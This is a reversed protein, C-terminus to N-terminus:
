KVEHRIEWVYGFPRSQPPKNPHFCLVYTGFIRERSRQGRLEHLTQAYYPENVLKNAQEIDNIAGLRNGLALKAMGRYYYSRSHKPNASLVKSFHSVAKRAKGSQWYALGLLYHVGNKGPGYPDATDTNPNINAARALDAIASDFENLAAYIFGRAVIIRSDSPNSSIANTLRNIDENILEIDFPRRDTFFNSKATNSLGSGRGCGLVGFLVILATAFVLFISNGHKPVGNM